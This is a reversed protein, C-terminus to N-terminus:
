TFPVTWLAAPLAFSAPLSAMFATLFAGLLCQLPRWTRASGSMAFRLPPKTDSDFEEALGSIVAKTPKVKGNIM